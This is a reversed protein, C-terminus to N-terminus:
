CSVPLAQVLVKGVDLLPRVIWKSMGKHGAWTLSRDNMGAGMGWRRCARMGGAGLQTSGMGLRMLATEVQDDAHHGVALVDADARTLTQLLLAYRADRATREFM